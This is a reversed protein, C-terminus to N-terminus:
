SRRILLTAAGCLFTVLVVGMLILWIPTLSEFFGGVNPLVKGSDELASMQVVSMIGFVSALMLGFISAMQKM